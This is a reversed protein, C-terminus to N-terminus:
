RREPQIKAGAPASAHAATYKQIMSVAGYAAFTLILANVPYRFRANVSLGVAVTTLAFYLILLLMFVGKGRQEPTRISALAGVCFCLFIVIWALRGLVVFLMPSFLFTRLLALMQSPSEMLMIFAPRELRVEPEIGIRALVEVNGDHTFFTLLTTGVSQMLGFPHSLLFAIARNKYYTANTLNIDEFSKLNGEGAYFERKAEEFGIKKEFSIVSPILYGFPVSAYQVSLASNQFVLTNRIMWPALVLLFVAGVLLSHRIARTIYRRSLCFITAVLLVPLYQTTPRVLTALAFFLSSGALTLWHENRWYRLFFFVGSLFLVTFFTENRITSSLHVSFPEIALAIAVIPAIWKQPTIERAIRYGLVPILSGLLLQVILAAWYSKFLVAFGALFLPYLPTRVSDPLFPPTIDRSFCNGSLLNESIQYYGDFGSFAELLNLNSRTFVICFFVTQVFLAFAFVWWLVARPSREKHLTGSDDM